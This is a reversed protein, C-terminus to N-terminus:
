TEVGQSIAVRKFNGAAEGNSATAALYGTQHKRGIISGAQDGIRRGALDSYRDSIVLLTNFKLDLFLTLDEKQLQLTKEPLLEEIASFGNEFDQLIGEIGTTLSLFRLDSQKQSMKHTAEAIVVIQSGDFDSYNVIDGARLDWVDPLGLATMIGKNANHSRLIQRAVKRAGSVNKVSPDLIAKGERITISGDRSEQLSRDDLTVSVVHNLARQEGTVTIRNPSDQITDRTRGDLNLWGQIVRGTGGYRFPIYLLNGWKDYYLVRGDHRGIFRLATILNVGRFDQSLFKHSHKTREELTSSLKAKDSINVGTLIDGVGLALRMALDTTRLGINIEHGLKVLSQEFGIESLSQGQMNNLTLRSGIGGSTVDQAV